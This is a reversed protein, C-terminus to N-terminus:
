FVFNLFFQHFDALRAKFGRANWLFLAAEQIQQDMM